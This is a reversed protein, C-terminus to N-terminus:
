RSVGAGHELSFSSYTATGGETERGVTKDRVLGVDADLRHDVKLLAQCFLESFLSHTISL